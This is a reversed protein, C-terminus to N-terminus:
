EQRNNEAQGRAAPWRRLVVGTIEEYGASPNNVRYLYSCRLGHVQQYRVPDDDADRLEALDFSLVIDLHNVGRAQIQQRSQYIYMCMKSISAQARVCSLIELLRKALQDAIAYCSDKHRTPALAIIYLKAVPLQM